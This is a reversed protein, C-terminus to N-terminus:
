KRFCPWDRHVTYQCFVCGFNCSDYMLMSSKTLSSFTLACHLEDFILSVCAPWQSIPKIWSSAYLCVTYSFVFAINKGHVLNMDM